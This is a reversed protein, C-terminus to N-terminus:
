RSNVATALHIDGEIEVGSEWMRKWSQIHGEMLWEPGYSATNNEFFQYRQQVEDIPNNSDLTTRIVTFFQLVVTITNNNSNYNKKTNSNPHVTIKNPVITNMMAVSVITGNILEPQYISGYQIATSNSSNNPVTKFDIDNSAIGSIVELQLTVENDDGKNNNNSNNFTVAIEHVLLESYNRHAYWRQEIPILQGQFNPQLSRRYYIGREIDITTIVVVTISIIIIVVM